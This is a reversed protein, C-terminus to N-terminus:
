YVLVVQGEEPKEDGQDHLLRSGRLADLNTETVGPSVMNEHVDAHQVHELGGGVFVGSKEHYVHAV